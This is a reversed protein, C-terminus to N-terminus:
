FKDDFNGNLKICNIPYLLLKTHYQADQSIPLPGDYFGYWHTEIM